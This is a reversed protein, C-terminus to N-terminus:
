EASNSDKFKKDIGLLKCVLGFTRVVIAVSIVIIGVNILKGYKKDIEENKENEKVADYLYDVADIQSSLAGLMKLTTIKKM